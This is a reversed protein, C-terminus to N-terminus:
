LEFLKELRLSILKIMLRKRHNPLKFNELGLPLSEDINYIVNDLEDKDYKAKIRKIINDFVISYNLKVEKLFDFHKPKKGKFWRVESRGRLVFAELMQNDKLIKEIKVDELERGLCCGSDYIPSFITEVIQSQTKLLSKPVVVSENTRVIENQKLTMKTLFKRLKPEIKAFFNNKSKIEEEIQNIAERFKSIFGWNEQHRDSNGILADFILM